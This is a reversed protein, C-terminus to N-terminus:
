KSAVTGCDVKELDPRCAGTNSVDTQYCSPDKYSEQLIIYNNYNQKTM